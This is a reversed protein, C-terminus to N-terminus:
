FNFIGTIPILNGSKLGLAGMELNLNEQTVKSAYSAASGQFDVIGVSVLVKTQQRRSAIYSSYALVVNSAPVGLVNSIALSMRKKIDDNVEELLISVEFKFIQLVIGCDASSTAGTKSSYTGTYCLSCSSQGLRSYTGPVCVSCAASLTEGSALILM